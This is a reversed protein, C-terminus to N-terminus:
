VGILEDAKKMAMAVARVRELATELRAEKAQEEALQIDAFRRYALDFVNRFRKLVELKEASIPLFTSIGIAAEGVSYFYYYLSTTKDLREDPVENNTNRFKKWNELEIGTLAEEFFADKTKRIDKVFKELMPDGSYPIHNITGKSFDSYDYDIFFNSNLFTHVLANRLHDFDLQQLELFLSECISLLDDPKRMSMAVTRVRELSAEIQLDRNKEEVAIRKHELEEITEELLVTMTKKLQDAREIRFADIGMKKDVAKLKAIIAEKEAESLQTDTTILDIVTQLNQDM